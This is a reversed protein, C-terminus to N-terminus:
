LGARRKLEHALDELQAAKWRRGFMRAEAQWENIQKQVKVADNAIIDTM